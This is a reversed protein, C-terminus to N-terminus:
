EKESDKEGRWRCGGSRRRRGKVFQLGGHGRHQSIKKLRHGGEPLSSSVFLAMVDGCRGNAGDFGGREQGEGGGGAGVKRVPTNGLKGM